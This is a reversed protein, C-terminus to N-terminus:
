PGRRGATVVKGDGQVAVADAGRWYVVDQTGLLVGDGSFTPDLDGASLLTRRELTETAARRSATPRRTRAIRSPATRSRFM